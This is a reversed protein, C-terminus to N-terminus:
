FASEVIEPPGTKPSCTVEESPFAEYLAGLVHTNLNDVGVRVKEAKPLHVDVLAKM